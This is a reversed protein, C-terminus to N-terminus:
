KQANKKDKSILKSSKADFQFQEPNKKALEFTASDVPHSEGALAVDTGEFLVFDGNGLHKVAKKM